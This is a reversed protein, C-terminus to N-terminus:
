IPEHKTVRTTRRQYEAAVGRKPIDRRVTMIADILTRLQPLTVGVEPALRDVAEAHQAAADQQALPRDEYFEGRTGGCAGTISVGLILASMVVLNKM